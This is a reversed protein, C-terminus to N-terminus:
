AAQAKAYKYRYKQKAGTDGFEERGWARMLETGMNRNIKELSELQTRLQQIEADRDALKADRSSVKEKYRMERARVKETVATDLATNAAEHESTLRQVEESHSLKLTRISEQLARIESAHQDRLQSIERPHSTDNKSATNAAKMDEAHQTRLREMETAHAAQTKRFEETFAQIEQAHQANQSHLRAMEAAHAANRQNSANITAQMQESHQAKLRQIEASHSTTHDGSASEAEKLQKTHELRMREVEATHSAKLKNADSAATEFAAKLQQSYEVTIRHIENAHADRTARLESTAAQLERVHQVGLREVEAAHSAREALRGEKEAALESRLREVQTMLYQSAGGHPQIPSLMSPGRTTGLPSRESGPTRGALPTPNSPRAPSTYDEATPQMHANNNRLISPTGTTIGLSGDTNSRRLGRGGKMWDMMNITFDTPGDIDESLIRPIPREAIPSGVSSPSGLADLDLSYRSGVPSSPAVRPSAGRPPSSQMRSSDM